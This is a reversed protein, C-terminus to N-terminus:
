LPFRISVTGGQMNVNLDHKMNKILPDDFSVQVSKQYLTYCVYGAGAIKTLTEKSVPSYNDIFHYGEHTGWLTFMDYDKNYEQTIGTQLMLARQASNVANAYAALNPNMVSMPILPPDGEAKSALLLLIILALKSKM